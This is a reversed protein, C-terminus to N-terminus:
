HCRQVGDTLVGQAGHPLEKGELWGTGEEGGMARSTGGGSQSGAKSSRCTNCIMLSWLSRTMNDSM